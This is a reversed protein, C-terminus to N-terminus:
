LKDLTNVKQLKVATFHPNNVKRFNSLKIKSHRVDRAGFKRPLGRNYKRCDVLEKSIVKNTHYFITTTPIEPYKKKIKCINKDFDHHFFRNHM